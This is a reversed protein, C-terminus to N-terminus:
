VSNVLVSNVPEWSLLQCRVFLYADVAKTQM